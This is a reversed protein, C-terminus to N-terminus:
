CPTRLVKSFWYHLNQHEMKTLRWKQLTGNLNPSLKTLYYKQCSFHGKQLMTDIPTM